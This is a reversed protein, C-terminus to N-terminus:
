YESIEYIVNLGMSSDFRWSLTYSSGAIADFLVEQVVPDEFYFPTEAGDFSFLATHNDELGEFVGVVNEATEEESTKATDGSPSSELVATEASSSDAAPEEANGCGYCLIAALLFLILLIRQRRM